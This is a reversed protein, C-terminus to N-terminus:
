LLGPEQPAEQARIEAQWPAASSSSRSEPTRSGGTPSRGGTRIEDFGLGIIAHSLHLCHLARRTLQPYKRGYRSRRQAGDGIVANRYLWAIPLPLRNPPHATPNPRCDPVPPDGVTISM